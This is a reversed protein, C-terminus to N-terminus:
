GQKPVTNRWNGRWKDHRNDRRIKWDTETM